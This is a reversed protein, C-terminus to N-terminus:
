ITLLGLVLGLVGGVAGGAAAGNKGGAALGVLTGISSGAGTTTAVYWPPADRRLHEIANISPSVFDWHALYSRKFKRIHVRRADSLNIEYDKLQGHPEGLAESIGEESPEFVETALVEVDVHPPQALIAPVLAFWSLM